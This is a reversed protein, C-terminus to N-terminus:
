ISRKNIALAAAKIAESLTPQAHWTRAIDEVTGGLQMYAVVEAILTSAQPGIIHCGLIKDSKKHALMKVFGDTNGITTARSNAIFPFKGTIYDIRKQQLQAETPGVSAVEPSTYIVRPILRHDVRRHQNAMIEVAAIAEETAKHALMPGRIVDGIAYINQVNTQFHNNVKIRGNEDLKVDITDLGLGKTYPKNNGSICAIDTSMTVTQKDGAASLTLKVKGMKTKAKIVKTSLM